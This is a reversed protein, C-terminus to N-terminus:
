QFPLQSGGGGEEGGGWGKWVGERGERGGGVEGGGKGGGVGVETTDTLAAARVINSTHAKKKKM